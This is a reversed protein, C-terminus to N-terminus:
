PNGGTSSNWRNRWTNVLTASIILVGGAMAWSSPSERHALWTWFPSMAPELQLMTTAEFAPVHRIARTLCWYALGVQFVGLYLIVAADAVSFARMPLASPLALLFALVNGAVATQLGADPEGHKGQWRLGALMLAYTVGSALALLNGRPPDPATAVAADRGAFFLLLGLAVAAIYFVDSRRVREHLLWPGLLLVYLPATAQLFIANAATTLRNALVFLILTAAYAVAVPLMRWNWGRRAAPLAAFLVVAALGSRLSAVQWGTLTAAKVAAGGTSFLLAAAVIQLRSRVPSEV